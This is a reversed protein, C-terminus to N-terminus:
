RQSIECPANVRTMESGASTSSEFAFADIFSPTSSSVSGLRSFDLRWVIVMEQRRMARQWRQARQEDEDEGRREYDRRREGSKGGGAQREVSVEVKRRAGHREGM